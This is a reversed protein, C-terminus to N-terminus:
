NIKLSQRRPPKPPCDVNNVKASQSLLDGPKAQSVQQVPSSFQQTALQSELKKIGHSILPNTRIPTRIRGISLPSQIQSPSTTTTRINCTSNKARCQPPRDNSGLKKATEPTM